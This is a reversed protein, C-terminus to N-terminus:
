IAPFSCQHELGCPSFVNDVALNVGFININIQPMLAKWWYGIRKKQNPPLHTLRHCRPLSRWKWKRSSERRRVRGQLWGPSWSLSLCCCYCRCCYRCCCCHCCCWYQSCCCCRWCHSCSWTGASSQSFTLAQLDDTRLLLLPSRNWVLLPDDM